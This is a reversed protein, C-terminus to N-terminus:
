CGTATARERRVAVDLNRRATEVAKEATRLKDRLVKVDPSDDAATSSGERVRTRLRSAKDMMQIAEVPWCHTERLNM